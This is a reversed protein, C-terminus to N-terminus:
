NGHSAKTRSQPDDLGNSHVAVKALVPV